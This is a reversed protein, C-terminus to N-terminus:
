QQTMDIRDSATRPLQVIPLTRRQELPDVFKRIHSRRARDVLERLPDPQFDGPQLGIVAEVTEFALLRVRPQVRPHVGLPHPIERPRKSGTVPTLNAAFNSPAVLRQERLPHRLSARGIRDLLLPEECSMSQLPQQITRRAALGSPRFIEHHDIRVCGPLDPRDRLPRDGDVNRRTYQGFEGTVGVHGRHDNTVADHEVRGALQIEAPRCPERVACLAPSESAEVARARDRAAGDAVVTAFQM